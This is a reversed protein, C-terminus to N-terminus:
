NLIPKIDKQAQDIAVNVNKNGSIALSIQQQFTQGNDFKAINPLIIYRSLVICASSNRLNM